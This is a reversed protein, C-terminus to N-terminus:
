FVLIPYVNKKPLDIWKFLGKDCMFDDAAAEYIIIEM